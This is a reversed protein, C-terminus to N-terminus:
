GQQGKRLRWAALGALGTGFLFVTGPEPVPNNTGGGGPNTISGGSSGIIIANGTANSTALISLGGINEFRNHYPGASLDANTLGPFSSSGAATLSLGTRSEHPTNLAPLLATVWGYGNAQSFLAGGNGLFNDIVTANATFVAREQVTAGGTLNSGSDMMLIGVNNINVAGTGGFFDTLDAVGNVNAYSWGSGVLSSFNFASSAARGAKSIPDSGLSVVVKNSATLDPSAALNELARQMFLWGNFNEVGNSNGHDDADTGALIFPGAFATPATLLVSLTMAGLGARWRNQHYFPYM